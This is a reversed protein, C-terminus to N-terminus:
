ALRRQRRWESPASGVIRKFARSFAAESGYGLDLGVTTIPDDTERLRTAAVQMRWPRPVADSCRRCVARVPRPASLAFPGGTREARRDDLPTRPRRPHAGAGSRRLPRALRRALAHRGAPATRHRPPGRGRVDDRQSTRARRRKGALARAVRAGGPAGRPRELGRSGRCPTSSGRSRRSSRTSPGCTADLSGAPSWRGPATMTQSASDPGHRHSVLIPTPDNATALYWGVDAPLPRPSPASSIVHRDGHPVVVIDGAAM